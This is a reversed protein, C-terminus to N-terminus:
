GEAELKKKEASTLKSVGTRGGAKLKDGHKECYVYGKSDKFFLPAKCGREGDCAPAAATKAQDKVVDKNEEWHDAIEELEEDTLAPNASKFGKMVEERSSAQVPGLASLAQQATQSLAMKVRDLRAATESPTVRGHEVDQAIRHLAAAVRDKSAAKFM